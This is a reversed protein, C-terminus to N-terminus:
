KWKKVSWVLGVLLKEEVFSYDKGLLGKSSQVVAVQVM